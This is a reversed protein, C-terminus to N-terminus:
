LTMLPYEKFGILRCEPQPLIEFNKYVSEQMQQALTLIDHTTANGKNVIMNAHLHSVMADGHSLQGKFGLQDFYYAVYIIKKGNSM